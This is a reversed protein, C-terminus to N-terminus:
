LLRIGGPHACDGLFVLSRRLTHIWGSWVLERLPVRDEMPIALRRIVTYVTIVVVIIAILLLLSFMM